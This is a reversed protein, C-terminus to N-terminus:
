NKIHHLTVTTNVVIIVRPITTEPEVHIQLAFSSVTVM